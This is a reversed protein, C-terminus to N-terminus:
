TESRIRWTRRWWPPRAMPRTSSSRRDPGRQRDRRGGPGCHDRRGLGRADAVAPPSRLLLLLGVYSAPYFGLYFADAISPIPRATAARTSSCGSSSRRRTRPSRRRSRSGRVATSRRSSPARRDDAGRRRRHDRLLPSLRLLARGLRRGPLVTHAAFAGLALVSAIEVSLVSRRLEFRMWLLDADRGRAQPKPRDRAAPVRGRREADGVPVGPAAAQAALAAHAVPELSSKPTDDAYFVGTQLRELQPEDSVHFFLLMRVTPHCAAIAIADAYATQRRAARRDAEDDAARRRHVRGLKAPPIATQLGYEGYVIPLSSGPQATGDFAAGLLAVLKDYDALGISTSQPHEFTPPISSNEPYPHISFMDM